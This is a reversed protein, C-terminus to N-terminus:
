PTYERVGSKQVVWLKGTLDRKALIEALISILEPLESYNSGASLRLVAIGKHKEPQFVFPNSFDLDLTVLCRGEDTCV